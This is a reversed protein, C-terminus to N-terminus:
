AQETVPVSDSAQMKQLVTVTFHSFHNLHSCFTKNPGGNCYSFKIIGQTNYSLCFVRKRQVTESTPSHLEAPTVVEARVVCSGLWDSTLILPPPPVNSSM